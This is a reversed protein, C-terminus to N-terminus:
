QQVELLERLAMATRPSTIWADIAHTGPDGDLARAARDALTGGVGALADIAALLTALDDGHLDTTALVALRQIQAFQTATDFLIAIAARVQNSTLAASM